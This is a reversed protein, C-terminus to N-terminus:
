RDLHQEVLDLFGPPFRLKARQARSFFGAAAKFSLPTPDYRLFEELPTRQAHQPWASRHAVHREGDIGWAAKPWSGKRHLVPDGKPEYHGPERLRQGLWEAVDVTVANGVLKWRHSPRGVEEAPQTWDAEFGQLREADRLDPKVIEGSTLVIAPPSPIGITSGAKLTPVADHAWGLGRLGETWYFGCAVDRWEEIPPTEPVGADDVLLVDRPDGDKSALLYVRERRQPLGTSRSDVVRYAWRYGLEELATVIHDLARGRDLQLMFPVNELLVWPVDHTRLLRFAEDVLGSRAGRIGATLGAQSLDQCPFGGVLLEIGAPLHELDRVDEHLPIDPFRHRLVAGAGPENECLIESTHGARRLGLELGGIGSFLGATRLQRGRTLAHDRPAARFLPMQQVPQSKTDMRDISAFTAALREPAELDLDSTTM